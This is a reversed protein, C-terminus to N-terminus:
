AVQRKIWDKYQAYRVRGSQARIAVLAENRPSSGDTISIHVWSDFELILQDYGTFNDYIFQFLDAPSYKSCVMDAALGHVHASTKSGGIWKNLEEPRYGSTVTIPGVQNRIPQLQTLCLTQLNQKVEDSPTMDIGHRAAYQSRLFENLSFNQSLRM